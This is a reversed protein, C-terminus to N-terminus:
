PRGSPWNWRFRPSSGAVVHRIVADAQWM